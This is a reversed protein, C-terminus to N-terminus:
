VIALRLPPYLSPAPVTGEKKKFLKWLTTFFDQNNVMLHNWLSRVKKLDCKPCAYKAIKLESFGEKIRTNFYCIVWFSDSAHEEVRLLVIGCGGHHAGDM